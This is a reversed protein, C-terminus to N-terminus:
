LKAWEPLEVWEGGFVEAREHEWGVNHFFRAATGKDGIRELSNVNGSGIGFVSMTEDRGINKKVKGASHVGAQRGQEGLRRVPCEPRCQWNEVTEFGDPDAHDSYPQPRGPTQHGKVEAMIGVGRVPNKGGTIGKVRKVGVRQCGEMFELEGGCDPCVEIIPQIPHIAGCELCALFDQCHVLAFNPPWRGSARDM